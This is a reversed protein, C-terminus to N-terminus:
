KKIEIEFLAPWLKGTVFLRNQEVDYAIGNLVDVKNSYEVNNLIGSLDLWFIVKGSDPEIVAIRETQWINAYIYGNIYELENINHILYIGDHVNIQKIEEFTEPDLFHLTSTGDSLILSKNNNTIGWGEHAYSFADLLNLTKKDYVFGIQEKWTLLYIKDDFITIGEAFYDNSLPINQMVTGTELDVKRLSSSGYLGTSEYLFGDKWVLGQTFAEPDHSFTNVIRYSFSPTFKDKSNSLSNQFSFLLLSFVLLLLLPRNKTIM